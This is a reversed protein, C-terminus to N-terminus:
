GGNVIEFNQRRVKMVGCWEDWEQGRNDDSRLDFTGHWTGECMMLTGAAYIAGGRPTLDVLLRVRQGVVDRCLERGTKSM